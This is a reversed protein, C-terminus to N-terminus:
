VKSSQKTFPLLQKYVGLVSVVFALVISFFVVNKSELVTSASLGAMLGGIFAFILSLGCFWVLVMIEKKM